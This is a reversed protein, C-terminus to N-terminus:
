FGAKGDFWKAIMANLTGDEKMSAIAANLKDKLEGDSERVGVGIGDGLVVESIKALEGNSEDIIPQLFEGDALVADAEGNRVAAITEDPTAYEVLTAGTSAVHASQITNTQAAIVGGAVDADASLGVYFSPDSPFYAESFDIVEDRESTISMGAIITDYTGNNNQSFPRGDSRKDISQKLAQKNAEIKEPM